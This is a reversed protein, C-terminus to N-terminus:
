QNFDKLPNREASPLAVFLTVKVFLTPMGITRIGGPSYM